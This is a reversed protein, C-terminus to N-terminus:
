PVTRRKPYGEDQAGSRRRPQTRNGGPLAPLRGRTQRVDRLGPAAFTPSSSPSVTSPREGSPQDLGTVTFAAHLHYPRHRHATGDQTKARGDIPGRRVGESGLGSPAGLPLGLSPAGRRAGSLPYPRQGARDSHHRSPAERQTRPAGLLGRRPGPKPYSCAMSASSRSSM